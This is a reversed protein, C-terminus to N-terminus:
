LPHLILDPKYNIYQFRLIAFYACLGKVQLEVMKTYVADGAVATCSLLHGQLDDTVVSIMYELVTLNMADSTILLSSQDRWELSSVPISAICRLTAPQGVILPGDELGSIIIETTFFM